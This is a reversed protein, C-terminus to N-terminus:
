RWRAAASDPSVGGAEPSGRGQVPWSGPGGSPITRTVMAGQSVDYYYLRNDGIPCMTVAGTATDFVCVMCAAFIEKFGRQEIMDNVTFALTDLRLLEQLVQEKTKPDSISPLAALRAKWERCWRLFLTAVEVMVFAAPSGHGSVDCKILAYYRDDLQQYDFYDGSVQTAGEYYAYLDIARNRIGGTSGKEGDAGVELPMFQKQITRGVVMEKEAIAAAVLGRTMENVTEALQGLEDRAGVPIDPLKTRDTTDRIARVAIALRRIPLIAINALVIAGVVGFGLAALAVLGSLQLLQDRANRVEGSIIETSIGLRVMGSYYAGEEDRVVLPRFFLYTEALKEPVFEPISGSHLGAVSRLLKGAKEEQRRSLGSSPIGVLAAKAATNVAAAIKSIAQRDLQPDDVQQRGPDFEVGEWKKENSAWLYDRDEQQETPSANERASVEPGSITMYLAERTMASIEPPFSRVMVSGGGGARVVPAARSAVSELLINARDRLGEALSKQERPIMRFVILPVAVGAAIVVM